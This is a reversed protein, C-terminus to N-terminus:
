DNVHKLCPYIRSGSPSKCYHVAQVVDYTENTFEFRPLDKLEERYSLTKTSAQSLAQSNAGDRDDWETRPLEEVGVDDDEKEDTVARALARLELSEGAKPKIKPGARGNLELAKRAEANNSKAKSKSL